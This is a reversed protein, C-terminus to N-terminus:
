EPQDVDGSDTSRQGLLLAAAEHRLSLGRHSAYTLGSALLVLSVVGFGLRPTPLFLVAPTAGMVQAVQFRLESASITRGRVEAPVKGYLGDMARASVSMGTGVAFALVVIGFYGVVLVGLAAVVGPTILAAVIVRDSTLRRHLSSAILTGLFTGTGAAVIAAAFIWADGGGRKIAFALLFTLAGTGASLAAVAYSASRVESPVLHRRGFWRPGDPEALRARIAASAPVRITASAGAALLFGVAGIIPLVEPGSVALVIGAIGTGVGGAVTGTRAIHGSARVLEVRDPCLQALLATKVLAYAKRSLLIGFVIPYFSLSLLSGALMLALGVRFLQTLMLLTRYGARSRDLLPGVIPAAFALPVATLLLYGLIRGQSAELSVSFFLSGVLSLNIMADAVDDVAHALALRRTARPGRVVNLLRSWSATV